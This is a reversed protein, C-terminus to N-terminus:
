VWHSLFYLFSRRRQGCGQVVEWLDPARRPKPALLPEQSCGSSPIPAARGACSQTVSGAQGPGGRGGPRDGPRHQARGQRVSSLFCRGSPPQSWSPNEAAQQGRAAPALEPAPDGQSYNWGQAGTVAKGPRCSPLSRPAPGLGPGSSCGGPTELGAKDPPEGQSEGNEEEGRREGVGGRAGPVAEQLLAPSPAAPHKALGRGASGPEAWIPFGAPVSAQSCRCLEGWPKAASPNRRRTVDALWAERPVAPIFWSFGLSPCPSLWSTGM